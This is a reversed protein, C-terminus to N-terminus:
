VMSLDSMSKTWRRSVKRITFAVAVTMLLCMGLMFHFEERDFKDRGPGPPVSARVVFPMSIMIVFVFAVILFEFISGISDSSLLKELSPAWRMILNVKFPQNCLQCRPICDVDVDSIAKLLCHRHCRLWDHKKTCICADVYSADGSSEADLNCIICIDKARPM